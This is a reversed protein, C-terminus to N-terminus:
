GFIDVYGASDKNQELELIARIQEDTLDKQYILKYGDKVTERFKRPNTFRDPNAIRALWDDRCISRRPTRRATSSRSSTSASTRSRM